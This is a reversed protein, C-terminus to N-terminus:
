VPACGASRGVAAVSESRWLIMVASRCDLSARAALEVDTTPHVSM